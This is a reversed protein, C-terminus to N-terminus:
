TAPVRFEIRVRDADLEDVATVELTGRESWPDGDVRADGTGLSVHSVRVARTLDALPGRGTSCVVLRGDDDHEVVVRSSVFTSGAIMEIATETNIM